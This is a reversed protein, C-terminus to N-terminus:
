TNKLIFMKKLQKFTLKFIKFRISANFLDSFKPESYEVSNILFVLKVKKESNNILFFKNKFFQLQTKGELSFIKGVLRLDSQQMLFLTLNANFHHINRGYKM